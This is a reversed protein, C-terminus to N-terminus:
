IANKWGFTSPIKIVEPNWIVISDVEWTKLITDYLETGDHFLFMGDYEEEKMKNFNITTTMDKEIKYKEKNTYGREILCERLDSMILYPMIDEIHEVIFIRANKTLCFYFYKETSFPIIGNFWKWRKVPNNALKAIDKLRYYASSTPCGWLGYKPKIYGPNTEKYFLDINFENHGYHLFSMNNLKHEM